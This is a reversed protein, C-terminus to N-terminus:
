GGERIASADEGTWLDWFYEVSRSSIYQDIRNQTEPAISDFAIGFALERADKSINKVKGSIQHEDEIEAFQWKVTIWEDIQISPLKEDVAKILCRCGSRSIDAVMGDVKRGGIQVEARLFSPMREEIRRDCREIRQPYAVFLAEIPPSLMRILASEFGLVTDRHVYRVRIQRGESLKGKIAALNKALPKIILYSDPDVGILVSRLAFEVGEIELDMPTGFEMSFGKIVNLYSMNEKHMIREMDSWFTELKVGEMM